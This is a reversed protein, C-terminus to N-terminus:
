ARARPGTERWKGEALCGASVGGAWRAGEPQVRGTDARGDAPRDTSATIAMAWIPEMPSIARLFGERSTVVWVVEATM